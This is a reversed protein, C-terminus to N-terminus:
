WSHWSLVMRSRSIVSTIKRVGKGEDSARKRNWGEAVRMALLLLLGQGLATEKFYATGHQARTKTVAKIQWTVQAKYKTCNLPLWFTFCFRKKKLFFFWAYMMINKEWLSHVKLYTICWRTCLESPVFPNIAFPLCEDRGQGWKDLEEEPPLSRRLNLKTHVRCM